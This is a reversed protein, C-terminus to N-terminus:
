MTVVTNTQLITAYHKICIGKSAQRHSLTTLKQLLVNANISCIASVVMGEYAECRTQRLNCWSRVNQAKCSM